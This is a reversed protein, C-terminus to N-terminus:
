QNPVKEIMAILETLFIEQRRATAEAHLQLLEQVFLNHSSSSPPLLARRMKSPDRPLSSVVGLLKCANVFAEELEPKVIALYRGQSERLEFDKTARVVKMSDRLRHHTSRPDEDVMGLAITRKVLLANLVDGQGYGHFDKMPRGTAQRLFRFVDRDAYCEYGFVPKM